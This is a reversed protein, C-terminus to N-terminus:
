LYGSTQKQIVTKVSDIVIVKKYVKSTKTIIRSKNEDGEHGFVVIQDEIYGDLYNIGKENFSLDYIPIKGEGISVFTDHEKKLLNELELSDKHAKAYFVLYRRDQPKLKITDLISSYKILGKNKKGVIVTDPFSLTYVVEKIKPELPKQEEKKVENCSLCTIIYILGTFYILKNNDM